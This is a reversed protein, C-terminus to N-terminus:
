SKIFLSAIPLVQAMSLPEDFAESASNAGINGGLAAIDVGAQMTLEEGAYSPNVAATAIGSQNLTIWPKLAPSAGLTGLARRMMRIHAAHRAEVSHINLAATLVTNNGSLNGAQGKYARVGTDEFTQAIALFFNYDTFVAPFTGGATFDFVPSAPAGGMNSLVTKLFIVHATEHNRITTLAATAAATPILGPTAVGKVYFAEELYELTLAYKLVDAVSTGTSQAYTKNFMSGLAFPIAALAIKGSINTFQKMANRRSDLRDYVDPDIKEIEKFINFLDM